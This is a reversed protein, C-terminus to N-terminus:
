ALSPESVNCLFSRAPAPLFTPTTTPLHNNQRHSADPEPIVDITPNSPLVRHYPARVHGSALGATTSSSNVSQSRPWPQMPERNHLVFLVVVNGHSCALMCSHQVTKMSPLRMAHRWKSLQLCRLISRTFADATEVSTGIFFNIKKIFYLRAAKKYKYRLQM